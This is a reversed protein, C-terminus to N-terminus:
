YYEGFNIDVCVHNETDIKFGDVCDLCFETGNVPCEAGLAPQGNECDCIKPLCVDRFHQIDESDVESVNRALFHTDHCSICESLNHSTCTGNPAIGVVGVDGTEIMVGLCECENIHCTKVSMSDYDDGEDGDDIEGELHYFEDCESCIEYPRQIFQKDYDPDDARHCAGSAM